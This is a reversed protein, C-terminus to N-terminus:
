NFKKNAQNYYKKARKLHGKTPNRYLSGTNYMRAVKIPNSSTKKKNLKIMKAGAIMSNSFMKLEEPHGKFGLALANMGMVQCVGYSTALDKKFEELKKRYTKIDSGPDVNCADFFWETYKNKKLRNGAEKFLPDVYRKKFKPEYREPVDLMGKNLWRGSETWATMYILKPDMKIKKSVAKSYAIVLKDISKNKIPERARKKQKQKKEPKFYFIEGDPERLEGRRISRIRNEQIDSWNDQFNEISEELRSSQLSDKKRTEKLFEALKKEKQSAREMKKLDATNQKYFDVNEARQLGIYGAANFLVTALLTLGTNKITQNM